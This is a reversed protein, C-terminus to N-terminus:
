QAHAAAAKAAAADDIKKLFAKPDKRFDRLCAKCCLRVLRDPKGPEKYVYDIAGGMDGGELKEGSVVCTDIPYAAKAKALDFAAPSTASGPQAQAASEHGGTDTASALPSASLAALLLLIKSSNTIKRANM